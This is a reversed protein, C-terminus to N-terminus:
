LEVALADLADLEPASLPVADGAAGLNDAAHAADASRPVVTMNYQRAWLLVVRAASFGRAAAIGAVVPHGLVPNAAGAANM